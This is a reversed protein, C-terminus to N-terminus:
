HLSAFPRFADSVSAAAEAIELAMSLALGGNRVTCLPLRAEMRADLVDEIARETAVNLGTELVDAEAVLQRFDHAEQVDEVTYRELRHGLDTFRIRGLTGLIDLDFVNYRSADTCEVWAEFRGRYAIRFGVEPDEAASDVVRVVAFGTPDGFLFRLLDLMHSGNNVIGKTYVAHVHQVEGYRGKRIAEATERYAPAYRRGYNVAVAVGSEEALTAIEAAEGATPAVPKELLVGKVSASAVVERLLPLHTAPTTCLSVIEPEEAKLMEGADRYLREVDWRRRVCALARDDPDAAAVLRTRECAAYAAAHSQLRSQGVGSCGAGIRGCGILAARLLPASM